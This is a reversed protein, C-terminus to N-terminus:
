VKLLCQGAKPIGLVRLFAIPQCFIEAEQAGDNLMPYPIDIVSLTM